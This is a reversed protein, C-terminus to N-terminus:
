ITLGNRISTANIKGILESVTAEDQNARVTKEYDDAQKPLRIDKLLDLVDCSEEDIHNDIINYYFDDKHWCAYKVLQLCVCIWNHLLDSDLTADHQEVRIAAIPCVNEDEIGLEDIDYALTGWPRPHMTLDIVQHVSKCSTIRFREQKPTLLKLSEGEQLEAEEIAQWSLACNVHLPKSREWYGGYGQPLRPTHLQDLKGEFSWLLAMLGSFDHVGFEDGWRMEVHVETGTGLACYTECNDAWTSHHKTRHEEAKAEEIADGFDDEEDDIGCHEECEPERAVEGLSYPDTSPATTLGALELKETLEAYLARTLKRLKIEPVRPFHPGLPALVGISFQLVLCFFLPTM